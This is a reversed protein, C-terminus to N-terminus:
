RLVFLSGVNVARATFGAVPNSLLRREAIAEQKYLGHKYSGYTTKWM